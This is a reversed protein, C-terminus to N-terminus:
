KKVVLTIVAVLVTLGGAISAVRHGARINSPGPEVGSSNL